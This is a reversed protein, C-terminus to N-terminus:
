ENRREPRTFEERRKEWYENGQCVKAVIFDNIKLLRIATEFASRIVQEYILLPVYIGLTLMDTIKRERADIGLSTKGVNHLRRLNTLSNIPDLGCSSALIIPITELAEALEKIVIQERGTTQRAYNRLKIAMEVETAGGGLLIRPRLIFEDIVKFSNYVANEVEDLIVDAFGRILITDVKHSERGKILIWSHGGIKKEEIIKAVGLDERSLVQVDPVLNAGTLKAVKELDKIHVRRIALIGKKALMGEIESELGKEIVLVGVKLSCLKNVIEASTKTKEEYLNKIDHPKELVIRHDYYRTKLKMDKYCFGSSLSTSLFAIKVDEVKKPMNLNPIEVFLAVGDILRTDFISGGIERKINISDSDLLYENGKKIVKNGVAHAVIDTLVNSEVHDFITNFLTKVIRKINLENVSVPISIERMIDICKNLATICGNIFIASNIKSKLKIRLIERTLIVATKSGDGATKTVNKAMNAMIEAIPHVQRPQELKDRKPAIRDLTVSGTKVWHIHGAEDVIINWLGAPGLSDKVFDSTLESIQLIERLTQKEGISKIAGRKEHQRYLKIRGM